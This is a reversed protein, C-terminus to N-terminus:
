EKDETGAETEHVPLDGKLQPSSEREVVPTADRVLDPMAKRTEGVGPRRLKLLLVPIVKGRFTGYLGVIGRPSYLVFGVFIVGLILRWHETYSSILDKSFLFVFAGIIPGYLTGM